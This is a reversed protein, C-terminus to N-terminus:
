DLDLTRDKGYLQRVQEIEKENFRYSIEYEGMYYGANPININGQKYKIAGGALQCGVCLSLLTKGDMIERKMIFVDEDPFYFNGYFPNLDNITPKVPKYIAFRANYGARQMMLHAAEKGSLVGSIQLYEKYKRKEYFHRRVLFACALVAVALIIYRIYQYYM